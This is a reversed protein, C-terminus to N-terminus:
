APLSPAHPRKYRKQTPDCTKSPPNQSSRFGGVAGWAPVTSGTAYAPRARCSKWPPRRPIFNLSSTRSMSRSPNLSNNRSHPCRCGPEFRKGHFHSPGALIQSTSVHFGKLMLVVVIEHDRRYVVKKVPRAFRGKPGQRETQGAAGDFHDGGRGRAEIHRPEARLDEARARPLGVQHDDGPRHRELHRRHNLTDPRLHGVWFPADRHAVPRAYASVEIGVRYKLENVLDNVHVNLDNSPQQTRFDYEIKK